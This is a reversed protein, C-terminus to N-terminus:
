QKDGPFHTQGAQPGCDEPAQSLVASRLQRQPRADQNVDGKGKPPGIVRVLHERQPQSRDSTAVRDRRRRRSFLGCFQAFGRVHQSLRDDLAAATLAGDPPFKRAVDSIFVREPYVHAHRHAFVMQMQEVARLAAWSASTVGVFAVPQRDFSDPSKLLDIFDKLVRPYSGSSEPLPVHLGASYLVEQRVDQFAPPKSTYAEPSFAEAPLDELNFLSARLRAAAYHQEIRSAIRLTSSNPRNTGSIILISDHPHM